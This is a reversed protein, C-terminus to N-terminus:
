RQVSDEPVKRDVEDGGGANTNGNRAAADSVIPQNGIGPNTGPQLGHQYREHIVHRRACPLFCCRWIGGDPRLVLREIRNWPTARLSAGTLTLNRYGGPPYREPPASGDRWCPM